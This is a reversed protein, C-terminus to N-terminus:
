HANPIELQHMFGNRTGAADGSPKIEDTDSKANNAGTGAPALTKGPSISELNEVAGLYETRVHANNDFWDASVYHFENGTGKTRLKVLHGTDVMRSIIPAIKGILTGRPGTASGSLENLWEPEEVLIADVVGGAGKLTKHGYKQPRDTVYKIKQAHTWDRSYSSGDKYGGDYKGDYKSVKDEAVAKGGLQNNVILANSATNATTLAKVLSDYSKIEENVQVLLKELEPKKDRAKELKQNFDDLLDKRVSEPLALLDITM